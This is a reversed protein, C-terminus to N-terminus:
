AISTDEPDRINKWYAAVKSTAVIFECLYFISVSTYTLMLFVKAAIMADTMYFNCLEIIHTIFCTWFIIMGFLGTVLRQFIPYFLVALFLLIWSISVFFNFNDGCFVMVTQLINLSMFAVLFWSRSESYQLTFGVQELLFGIM